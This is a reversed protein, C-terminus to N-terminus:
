KEKNNTLSFSLYKTFLCDMKFCRNCVSTSTCGGKDVCVTIWWLWQSINQSAILKIMGNNDTLQWLVQNHSKLVNGLNPCKWYMLIFDFLMLLGNRAQHMTIALGSIWTLWLIDWIKFNTSDKAREDLRRVCWFRQLYLFLYHFMCPIKQFWTFNNKLFYLKYLFEQM